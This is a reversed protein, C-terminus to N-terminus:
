VKEEVVIEVAIFLFSKKNLNMAGSFTYKGWIVM